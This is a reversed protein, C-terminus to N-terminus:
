CKTFIKWEGVPTSFTKKSVFDPNKSIFEILLKYEPLYDFTGTTYLSPQTGQGYGSVNTHRLNQSKSTTVDDTVSISRSLSRSQSEKHEYYLKLEKRIIEASPPDLEMIFLHTIIGTDYDNDASMTFNCPFARKVNPWNNYAQKLTSWDKGM